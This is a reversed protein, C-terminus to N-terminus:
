KDIRTKNRNNWLRLKLDLDALNWIHDHIARALIHNPIGATEDLKHKRFVEYLDGELTERDPIEIDTKVIYHGPVDENWKKVADLAKKKSTFTPYPFISNADKQIQYITTIM